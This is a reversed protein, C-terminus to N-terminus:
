TIHIHANLELCRRFYFSLYFKIFICRAILYFRLEDCQMATDANEFACGTNVCVCVCMRMVHCSSFVALRAFM